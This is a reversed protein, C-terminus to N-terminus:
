LRRPEETGDGNTALQELAAHMEDNITTTIRAQNTEGVLFPALRHGCILLRDRIETLGKAWVRRVDEAPVLTREMEERKMRAIAAQERALSAREQSLDLPGGRARGAAQARLHETYSRIWGALTDAPKLVGADVLQSVRGSTVGVIRGFAARSITSDLNM